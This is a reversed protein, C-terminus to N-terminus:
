ASVPLEAAHEADHEDRYRETIALSERVKALQTQLSVRDPYKALQRALRVIEGKERLIQTAFRACCPKQKLHFRRPNM